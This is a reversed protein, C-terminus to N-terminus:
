EEEDPAQGDHPLWKCETVEMDTFLAKFSSDEASCAYIGFQITDKVNFMHCIRMQKFTKGDTSNEICFDNERNCNQNDTRHQKSLLSNHFVFAACYITM